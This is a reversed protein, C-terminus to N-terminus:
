SLGMAATYGCDACEFDFHHVSAQEAGEVAELLWAVGCGPCHVVRRPFEVTEGERRRGLVTATPKTREAGPDKAKPAM